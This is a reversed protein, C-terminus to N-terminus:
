KWVDCRLGFMLMEVQIHGIVVLKLRFTGVFWADEIPVLNSQVWMEVWVDVDEFCVDCLSGVDEFSHAWLGCVLNSLVM